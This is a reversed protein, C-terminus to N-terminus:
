FGFPKYQFVVSHKGKPLWFTRFVPIGDIEYPKWPQSKGDVTLEWGPFQVESMIVDTDAPVEVIYGQYHDLYKETRVNLSKYDQRSTSNKKTTTFLKTLATPRKEIYINASKDAYVVTGKTPALNEVEYLVGLLDQRFEPTVNSKHSFEFYPTYITAGYGGVTQFDYANAINIPLVDNKIEVRYSGDTADLLKVLEPKLSYDSVVRVGPFVKPFFWLGNAVATMFILGALAYMRFRQEKLFAIGILGCALLFNQVAFHANFIHRRLLLVYVANIGFFGGLAVMWFLQKKTFKLKSVVEMSVALLLMLGFHLMISYRGLQRVQRVLPLEYMFVAFWTWYGIMALLSVILLTWIFRSYTKWFDTHKIQKRGFFAAILIVALPLLGIYINNGDRAPYSSPEIFNAFEGPDVNFAKSFQSYKLKVEPSQYGEAQVRYAHPFYQFTLWAQPLTVLGTVGLIIAFRKLTSRLSRLSSTIYPKPIPFYRNLEYLL